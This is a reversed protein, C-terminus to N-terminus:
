MEPDLKKRYIAHLECEPSEPYVYISRVTSIPIVTSCLINMHMIELSFDFISVFKRREEWDDSRIFAVVIIAM